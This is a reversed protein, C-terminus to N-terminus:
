STLQASVRQMRIYQGIGLNHGRIIVHWHWYLGLFLIVFHEIDAPIARLLGLLFLRLDVSLGETTGVGLEVSQGLKGHTKGKECIYGSHQMSM